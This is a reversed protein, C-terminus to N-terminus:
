LEKDVGQERLENYRLATRVAVYVLGIIAWFALNANSNQNAPGSVFGFFDGILFETFTIAALLYLVHSAYVFMSSLLGNPM